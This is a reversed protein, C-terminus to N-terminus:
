WTGPSGPYFDATQPHFTKHIRLKVSKMQMCIAKKKDEETTTQPQGVAGNKQGMVPAPEYDSKKLVGQYSVFPLPAM